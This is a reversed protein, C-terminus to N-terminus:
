IEPFSEELDRCVQGSSNAFEALWASIQTLVSQDTTEALNHLQDPDSKLDYFERFGDNYEVYLFNHTRAGMYAPITETGEEPKHSYLTLPIVKRWASQDPKPEGLLPVLSRGDVYDPPIVGALEAVTPAFDINGALYETLVQAKTIGPGRVMFPVRIDEEYPLDKGPPLRHQGMHYGNDSTFFVYTNDLQGIEDLTTIIAHIMEDIAQMAQVRLQYAEDINEIDIETLPPDYRIGGPKQSVDEENFSATRPAKTGPFEDAHRPAPTYPGHPIYPTLYLLFPVDSHGARRIFDQAKNSLVDTLYHEPEEHYDVLKGNDNLTYNFGYYPQGAVASVWENWGAPIYVKYDRWPYGNMYKGMFAARYGAAQTWTAVTSAENELMNFEEFGGNPPRNRLTGHNHTYQGRLFTARSPCCVPSTIIFQQMTLGQDIIDTKLNPMYDTTGLIADLDDVMIFVINPRNTNPIVEVDAAATPSVGKVLTPEPTPSNQPQSCGSLVSAALSGGFLKLFDRRNLKRNQTM